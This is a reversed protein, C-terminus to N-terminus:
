SGPNFNDPALTAAGRPQVTVFAALTTNDRNSNHTLKVDIVDFIFQQEDASIILEAEIDTLNTSAKLVNESLEETAFTGNVYYVYEVIRADSPDQGDWVALTVDVIGPRLLRVSNINQGSDDINSIFTEGDGFEVEWGGYTFSGSGGGSAPQPIWVQFNANYTLVDGDNLSQPDISVNSLNSLNGLPISNTFRPNVDVFDWDGSQTPEGSTTTNSVFVLTNTNITYEVLLGSAYEGASWAIPDAFVTGIPPANFGTEQAFPIVQNNAFFSLGTGAGQNFVDFPQLEDVEPDKTGVYTFVTTTREFGAVFEWVEPFNRPDPSGFQFEQKARYLSLHSNLLSDQSDTADSVAVIDGESYAQSGSWEGEFAFGGGEGSAGPEGQPGKLDASIFEAGDWVYLVTGILYADGVFLELTEGSGSGYVPLESENDLVGKLELGQGVPGEPGTPGAPGTSGTEGTAGVLGGYDLTNWATTGDGIKFKGTDTEVGM